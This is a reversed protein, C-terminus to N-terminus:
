GDYPSFMVYHQVVSDGHLLVDVDSCSSLSNLIRFMPNERYICFTRLLCEILSGDKSLLAFSQVVLVQCSGLLFVSINVATLLYTLSFPLLKFAVFFIVVGNVRFCPPDEDPDRALRCVAEDDDNVHSWVWQFVLM